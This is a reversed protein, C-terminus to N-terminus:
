STLRTHESFNSMCYFLGRHFNGLFKLANKGGKRRFWATIQHFVGGPCDNIDAFSEAQPVADTGIKVCIGAVVSLRASEHTLNCVDLPDNDPRFKLREDKLHVEDLFMARFVVDAELIVLAIWVYFDM